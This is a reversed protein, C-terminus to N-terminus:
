EDAVVIGLAAATAGASAVIDVWPMRLGRLSTVGLVDELSSGRLECRNLRAGRFDAGTLRCDIFTVADLRAEMFSAEALNVREFVVRQLGARAFSALQLTSDTIALDRVKGGSLGFGVLRSREVRVRAISGERGDVNSFDCDRLIVDLLDLGPANEAELTVGRLESERLRVRRARAVTGPEPAVLAGILTLAGDGDGDGATSPLPQAELEPLDPAQILDHAAV